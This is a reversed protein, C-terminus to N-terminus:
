WRSQRPLSTPKQETNLAFKRGLNCFWTVFATAFIAGSMESAQIAPILVAIGWTCLAGLLALGASKALKKLDLSGLTFSRSGNMHDVGFGWSIFFPWWDRNQSFHGM